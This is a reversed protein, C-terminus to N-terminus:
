VHTKEIEAAWEGTAALGQETKYKQKDNHEIMVKPKPRSM